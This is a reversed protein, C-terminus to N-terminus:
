LSPSMQDTMSQAIEETIELAEKYRRKHKYLEVLFKGHYKRFGYGLEAGVVDYVERLLAEYEPLEEYGKKQRMGILNLMKIVTKNSYERIRSYGKRLYDQSKELSGLQMYSFSLKHYVLLWDINNGKQQEATQDAHEKEWQKLLEEVKLLMEIAEEYQGHEVYTASINYYISHMMEPRIVRALEMTRRYFRIM